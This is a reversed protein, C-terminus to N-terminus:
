PIFPLTTVQNVEIKLSSEISGPPKPLILLSASTFFEIYILLETITVSMICLNFSFVPNNAQLSSFDNLAEWCMFSRNKESPGINIRNCLVTMFTGCIDPNVQRFELISALRELLLIFLAWGQMIFRLLERDGGLSLKTSDLTQQHLKPM